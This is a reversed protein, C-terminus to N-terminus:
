FKHSYQVSLFFIQPHDYTGGIGATRDRGSQTRLYSIAFGLEDKPTLAYQVGTGIRWVKGNPLLLSIDDQNQYFSSDYAVGLNLKTRADLQYQVGLATHWTDQMVLPTPSRNAMATNTFASWGQWGLNGMVAWRDNVRHWVSFMVEEPRVGKDLATAYLGGPNTPMDFHHTIKSQWTLGFRTNKSPEVLVGLRAGYAWNGDSIEVTAGGATQHALKTYGYSAVLGGGFSVQESLRYAMTPQVSAAKLEVEGLAMRGVWQKGFDLSMGYNGYIGIGLKLRESVSHSYFLNGSPRLGSVNGPNAGAAPTYPADGYLIQAGMSVQHGSLRTLGAPNAYITSADEARAATGAAALSLDTTGIEYLHLGGAQAALPMVLM